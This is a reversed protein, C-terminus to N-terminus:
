CDIILRLLGYSLGNMIISATILGCFIAFFTKKVDMSLFSAVLAGTWAGTGPLPIAVLLYLGLYKHKLLKSSKRNTREEVKTVVLAYRTKKIKEFVNKVFLLIFPIPLINGLICLVNAAKWDVNLASAVILGGRLELIPMMSIFFITVKANFLNNFWTAIQM